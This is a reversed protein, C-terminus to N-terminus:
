ILFNNVNFVSTSFSNTYQMGYEFSEWNKSVYNQSEASSSSRIINLIVKHKRGLTSFTTKRTNKACDSNIFTYLKKSM